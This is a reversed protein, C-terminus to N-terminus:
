LERIRRYIKLRSAYTSQWTPVNSAGSESSGGSGKSYSYGGFSESQFPSMAASSASGNTEQWEAIESALDLFDKPPSMVWVAGHFKGEDVLDADSLKHVGNNLRSGIIRIYDTPIDFSPTLLGDVIQWDGLHKDGEYTFYNKIEACIETLMDVGDEDIM